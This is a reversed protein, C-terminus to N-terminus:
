QHLVNGLGSVIPAIREALAPAFNRLVM